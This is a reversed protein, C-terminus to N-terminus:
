DFFIFINTVFEKIHFINHFINLQLLSELGGKIQFSAGFERPAGCSPNVQPYLLLLLHNSFEQSESTVLHFRQKLLLWRLKLMSLRLFQRRLFRARGLVMVRSIWCGVNSFSLENKKNKFIM